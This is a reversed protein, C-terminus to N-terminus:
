LTELFSKITSKWILLLTGGGWIPTVFAVIIGGVVMLDNPTNVLWIALTLLFWVGVLVLLSALLRFIILINEKKGRLTEMYETAPFM